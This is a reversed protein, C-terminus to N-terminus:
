SLTNERMLEIPDFSKLLRLYLQPLELREAVIGDM